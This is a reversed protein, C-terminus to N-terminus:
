HSPDGFLCLGFLAVAAVAVVSTILLWRVVAPLPTDDTDM